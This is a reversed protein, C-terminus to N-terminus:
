TEFEQLAKPLSNKPYSRIEIKEVEIEKVKEKGTKGFLTKIKYGGREAQIRSIVGIKINPNNGFQVPEGVRFSIGDECGCNGNCKSTCSMKNGGNRTTKKNANMVKIFM